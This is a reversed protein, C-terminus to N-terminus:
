NGDRAHRKMFDWMIKNHMFSNSLDKYPPGHGYNGTCAVFENGGLCDTLMYCSWNDWGVANDMMTPYARVSTCGMRQKYFRLVNQKQMVYFHWPTLVSNYPGKEGPVPITLSYPFTTDYLGHFDIISVPPDLPINDPFGLIPSAAVIGFTAVIDNLKNLSSYTLMGGNSSGTMHVSNANLCYNDGVYDVIARIFAEEDYCGRRECTFQYRDQCTTEQGYYIDCSNVNSCTSGDFESLPRPLKCPPGLPGDTKSSNWYGDVGDAQLLVIPFLLINPPVLPM